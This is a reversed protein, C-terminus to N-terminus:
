RQLFILTRLTEVQGAMLNFTLISSRRGYQIQNTPICVMLCSPVVVPFFSSFKCLFFFAQLLLYFELSSCRTNLVACSLYSLLRGPVCLGPLCLFWRTPPFAVVFSLLCVTYTALFYLFYFFRVLFFAWFSFASATPFLFLPFTLHPGASSFACLLWSICEILSISFLVFILLCQRLFFYMHLFCRLDCFALHVFYLSLFSWLM